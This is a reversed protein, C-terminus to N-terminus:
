ALRTRLDQREFLPRIEIESVEAGSGELHIPLWRKAFAIAEEKSPVQILSYGAIIEKTETFPGDIVTRTGGSQKVRAGQSTPKLGDGSLLAGSQAVETMLTGMKALIAPSPLADSETKQDGKLMVLFRTTGPKRAPPGPVEQDVTGSGGAADRFLQEQRRWGEPDENPDVPFDSPEFLARIEIEGETGPVRRAWEIAEPKSKAAILWYGAILQRPEAFPGDTVTFSEKASKAPLRVRAGRASAHLGEGALLVGAKAMAENFTGMAALLSADPLVGAETKSDSKILLMFRM